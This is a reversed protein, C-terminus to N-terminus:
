TNMRISISTMKSTHIKQEYLVRGPNTTHNDKNLDSTANAKNKNEKTDLESNLRM